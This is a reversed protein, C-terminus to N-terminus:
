LQVLKQKTEDISEVYVTIKSKAASCLKDTGDSLFQDEPWSETNRLLFEPGFCLLKSNVTSNPLCDGTAINALNDSSSIYHLKEPKAVKHHNLCPKPALNEM